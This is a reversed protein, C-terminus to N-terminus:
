KTWKYFWWGGVATAITGLVVLGALAYPSFGMTLIHGSGVLAATFPIDIAMHVLIFRLYSMKTLGAAYCVVEPMPVFCMRAFIFGKLTGMKELMRSLLSSEDKIFRKTIAIGYKRAIIFAITGGLFDGITIVIFGKWFGFLAGAAPYLASGSLPAFVITSAKTLAFIVPAWIGFRSVFTQVDGLDFFYFLIAIAAFVLVLSVVNEILDKYKKMSGNIPISGIVKEKGHFHEVSQAVVAYIFLTFAM